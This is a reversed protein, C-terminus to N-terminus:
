EMFDKLLRAYQPKRFKRLAKHEIQRVREHTVHLENAVDQLTYKIQDDMLGFRKKIIFQEKETFEKDLIDLIIRRLENNESYREADQNISKNENPIFDELLSDGDDGDAGVPTALSVPSQICNRLLYLDYQELPKKQKFSNNTNIYHLIEEDTPERDLDNKLIVLIKKLKSYQEYTHVPVRILRGNDALARTISQKIWWTAYTSFKFGLSPEFKDVAKMLGLNGEQILDEFDLGCGIYRKAISFVLRLNSEILRTKAEKSGSKCELSVKLEEEPTLLSYNSMNSVYMKIVDNVIVESSSKSAESEEEEKLDNFDISDDLLEIKVKHDLLYDYIVEINSDNLQDCSELIQLIDDYSVQNKSEILKDLEKKVIDNM